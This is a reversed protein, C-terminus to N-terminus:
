SESSTMLKQGGSPAALSIILMNTISSARVYLCVCSVSISLCASVSLSVSPSVCVVCM